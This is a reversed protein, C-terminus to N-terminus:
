LVKQICDAIQFTTTKECTSSDRRQLRTPVSPREKKQEQPLTTRLYM